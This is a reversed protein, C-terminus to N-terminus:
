TGEGGGRRLQETLVRPRVRHGRPWVAALLPGGLGGRCPVVMIRPDEAGPAHERELLTRSGRVIALGECDERHAVAELEEFDRAVVAVADVGDHFSLDYALRWRSLRDVGLFWRIALEITEAATAPALPSLDRGKLPHEDDGLGAHSSVEVCEQQLVINAHARDNLAGLTLHGRVPPPLGPAREAAALAALVGHFRDRLVDDLLDIVRVPLHESDAAYVMRPLRESM